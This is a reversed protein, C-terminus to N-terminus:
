RGIAARWWARGCARRDPGARPRGPVLRERLRARSRPVPWRPAELGPRRPAPRHPRLVRHRVRRAGVPRARGAPRVRSARDGLGAARHRVSRGRHRVPRRAGRRGGRVLRDQQGAPGRRRRDARHRDRARRVRARALTDRRGDDPRQHGARPRRPSPCSPSRHPQPHPPRPRGARSRRTLIGLPRPSSHRFRARGAWRVAGLGSPLPRMVNAVGAAHIWQRARDPARDRADVATRLHGAPRAERGIDPRAAQEVRPRDQGHGGVGPDLPDVAVRRQRHGAHHGHEDRRVQRDHGVARVPDVLRQGPVLDQPGALRTASTMASVGSAAASAAISTVTSVVGSSATVSRSRATSGPAGLARKSRGSTSAPAEASDCCAATPPPDSSNVGSSGTESLTTLRVPNRRPSTAAASAALSEHDLTAERRAPDM